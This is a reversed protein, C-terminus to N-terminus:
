DLMGEGLERLRRMVRSQAIRVANASMGLSAGVESARKGEIAVERFAAMTQPQFESKAIGLLRDCIARHYEDDWLQSLQSKPDALQDAMAGYDSGGVPAVRRNEQRWFTKLRNAVVQRLWCRLAGTRGNHEFNALETVLLQMVDQGVDDADHERVGRRVLWHRILPDYIERFDQWADDDSSNRLRM